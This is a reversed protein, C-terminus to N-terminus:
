EQVRMGSVHLYWFVLETLANKLRMNSQSGHQKLTPFLSVGLFMYIYIYIEFIFALM